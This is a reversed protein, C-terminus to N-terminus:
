CKKTTRGGVAGATVNNIILDRDLTAKKIKIGSGTSAIDSLRASGAVLEDISVGVISETNPSEQHLIGILKQVERLLDPDKIIGADDLESAILARRHESAPDKNLVSLDVSPYRDEIIKKVRGYAEKGAESAAGKIVAAAGLSLATVVVTLPEM